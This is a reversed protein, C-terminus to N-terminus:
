KLGKIYKFPVASTLGHVNICAEFKSNTWAESRTHTLYHDGQKPYDVVEVPISQKNVVNFSAANQYKNIFDYIAKMILARENILM